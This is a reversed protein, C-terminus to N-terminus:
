DDRGTPRAISAGCECAFWVSPADADADLKPEDAPVLAFGVAARLLRARNV